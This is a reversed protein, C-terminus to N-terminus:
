AELPLELARALEVRLFDYVLRIHRHSRVDRHVALWVQSPTIPLEPLVRKLSADRRALYTPLVGLGSGARVAAWHVVRDDCRFSFQARSAHLGMRRMSRMMGEDRDFGILAHQSLEAANGPVGRRRLYAASAFVGFRIVGVRRAVVTAQAPRVLRVAIDAERQLLDSLEDTALLEITPSAAQQQLSALVPPLLHCSVMRSASIRVSSQARQKREHLHRSVAAASELMGHGVEAVRQAAPTPTMGAGSPEFLAVGLQAELQRIHRGVTPQSNGLVRAAGALTRREMVALFSRMLNWDFGDRGRGSPDSAENMFSDIVHM